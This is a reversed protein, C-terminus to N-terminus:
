KLFGHNTLYIWEKNGDSVSICPLEEVHSTMSGFFEM